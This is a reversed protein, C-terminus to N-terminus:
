RPPRQVEAARKCRGRRPAATNSASLAQRARPRVPSVGLPRTGTAGCASAASAGRRPADAVAAASAASPLAATPPPRPPPSSAQAVRTSRGVALAVAAASGFLVPVTALVVPALRWGVACAVTLGTALVSLHQVTDVAQAGVDVVVVDGDSAGAGWAM